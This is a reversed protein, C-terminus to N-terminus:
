ACRYHLHALILYVSQKSSSSSSSGKINSRKESVSGEGEGRERGERREWACETLMRCENAKLTVVKWRKSHPVTKMPENAQLEAATKKQRYRNCKGSVAAAAAAAASAQAVSHIYIKNAHSATWNFLARANLVRVYAFSVYRHKETCKEYFIVLLIRCPPPPTPM